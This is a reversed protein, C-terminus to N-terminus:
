HDGRRRNGAPFLFNWIGALILLVHGSLALSIAPIIYWGGADHLRRGYRLLLQGITHPLNYVLRNMIRVTRNLLRRGWRGMPRLLFFPDRRGAATLVLSLGALVIAIVGLQRLLEQM